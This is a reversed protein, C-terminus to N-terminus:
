VTGETVTEDDGGAGAPAFPPTHTLSADTM